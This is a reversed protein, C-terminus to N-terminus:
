ARGGHADADGVVAQERPRHAARLPPVPREGLPEDGLPVLDGVERPQLPFRAGLRLDRAHAHDRDGAGIREVVLLAPSPDPRRQAEARADQPVEQTMAARVVRHVKAREREEGQESRPERQDARTQRDGDVPELDPRTAVPILVEAAGAPEDPM